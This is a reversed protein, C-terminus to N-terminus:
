GKPKSLDVQIDNAGPVFTIRAESKPLAFPKFKPNKSKEAALGIQYTGPPLEGGSAYIEFTGDANVLTSYMKFPVPKGEGDLLNFVIVVEGREGSLTVPSGGDILQGKVRAMGPGGCGAVLGCILVVLLPLRKSISM